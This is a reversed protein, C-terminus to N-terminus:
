LGLTNLALRTLLPRAEDPTLRSASFPTSNMLGFAAVATTGAAPITLTDDLRM